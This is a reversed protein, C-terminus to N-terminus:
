QLMGTLTLLTTTQQASLRGLLTEASENFSVTAEGLLRRGTDTLKVLSVRADRPAQEKQVLGIKEMPTLLRTVGSASLGISEALDIRRMTHDPAQELKAMVIYESFSIGHGSLRRDVSKILHNHVHALHMILRSQLSPTM